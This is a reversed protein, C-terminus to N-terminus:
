RSCQIKRHRQHTSHPPSACAHSQAKPYAAIADRAHQIANALLGVRIASNRQKKRAFQRQAEKMERVLTEIADSMSRSESTALPHGPNLGRTMVLDANLRYKQPRLGFWTRNTREISGLIFEDTHLVIALTGMEHPALEDTSIQGDSVIREAPFIYADKSSFANAAQSRMEEAARAGLKPPPGQQDSRFTTILVQTAFQDPADNHPGSSRSLQANGRSHQNCDNQCNTDRPM